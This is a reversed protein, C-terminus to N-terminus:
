QPGIVPLPYASDIQNGTGLRGSGADGWCWVTGNTTIGCSFTDGTSIYKFAPGMVQVPTTRDPGNIVGFGLKGRGNSGWCWARNQDDVACSHDGAVSLQVFRVGPANVQAPTLRDSTSGEGLQGSSNRGWCYISGAPQVIGCTHGGGASIASFRLGGLVLLPTPSDVASGVGLRGSTGEGWCYASEGVLGCTHLEGAEIQTFKLGGQVKTVISSQSSNNGTGLRGSSGSGVCGVDGNALLVCTHDNGLALSTGDVGADRWNTITSTSTSAFGKGLNNPGICYVRAALTLLCSHDDTGRVIDSLSQGISVEFATLAFSGGALTPSIRNNTNAGWCFARPAAIACSAGVGSTIRNAMLPTTSEVIIPQGVVTVPTSSVTKFSFTYVGSANIRIDDFRAVGAQTTRVSTGSITGTYGVASIQATIDYSGATVVQGTSGVVEVTFGPSLVANARGQNTQTALRLTVAEPTVTIQATGAKGDASATITVPGGAAVGTVVGDTSVTAISTNSSSWSLQRGSVTGGRSDRAVATLATTRGAQVSTATPTLSITAIQNAVTFTATATRGESSATINIPGGLAVGTVVGTTNVTAINTNSSQWVISRGALVAGTADRTTAVFTATAGVEASASSPTITISAVPNAVTVTATASKGESTATITVPGGESVGSVVGASSVSAITTNSSTWIVTRGTLTEGSADKLSVSLPTTAGVAVASAPPTVQITAVPALVTIQATGSAGGISATITTSGSALANLVGSTSVGAVASTSSNWTVVRDDNIVGGNADYAVATLTRTTGAFVTDIAPTVRVSGIPTYVKDPGPCATLLFLGLLALKRANM